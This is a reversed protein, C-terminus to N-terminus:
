VEWFIHVLHRFTRLVVIVVLSYRTADNPPLLRECFTFQQCLRLAFNVWNSVSVFYFQVFNEILCFNTRVHESFDWGYWRADNIALCYNATRCFFYEARLFASSWWEILRILHPISYSPFTFLSSPDIFSNNVLVFFFQETAYTLLDYNSRHGCLLHCLIDAYHFCRAYICVNYM